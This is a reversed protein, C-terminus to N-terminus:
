EHQKESETRGSRQLRLTGPYTLGFNFLWGSPFPLFTQIEPIGTVDYCKMSGLGEGGWQWFVFM